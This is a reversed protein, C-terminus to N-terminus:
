LNRRWEDELNGGRQDESERGEADVESPEVAREFQFSGGVHKTGWVALALAIVTDDHKNPPAHYKLVGGPTYEFQFDLMEGWLPAWAEQTPMEFNHQEVSLRLEGILERKSLNTTLFPYVQGGRKEELFESVPGGAANSEIVTTADYEEALQELIELQRRASKEHFRMWAHVRRHMTDMVVATTWDHVWGLDSGLVYSLSPNRPIKEGVKAIERLDKEAFVGAGDEPVMAWYLALYSAEWLDETSEEIAERSIYPNACTPFHYYALRGDPSSGNLVGGPYYERVREAINWSAAKGDRKEWEKLWRFVSGPMRFEGPITCRERAWEFKEVAHHRRGKDLNMLFTSPARGEEVLLSKTKVTTVPRMWDQEVRSFEDVALVDVREGFKGEPNKLGFGNFVRGGDARVLLKGPLIQARGDRELPEAFEQIKKWGREASERYPATWWCVTRPPGEMTQRWIRAAAGWTKGSRTGAGVYVDRAPDLALARQIGFLKTVRLTTTEAQAPAAASV